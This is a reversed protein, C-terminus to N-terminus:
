INESSEDKNNINYYKVFEIYENIENQHDLYFEFGEIKKLETEIRKFYRKLYFFLLGM